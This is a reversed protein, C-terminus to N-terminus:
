VGGGIPKPPKSDERPSAGLFEENTFPRSGLAKALRQQRALYNELLDERQLRQLAAVREWTTARVRAQGGDGEFMHQGIVVVREGPQVGSVAATARGEGIVTIERKRVEATNTAPAGDNTSQVVFATIVGTAPDEWLASAPVLTGQESEGYLLDVQVFMGPQLRGGQNRVEIEGVTSFSSSELFPSIRALVGELTGGELRPSHIRVRQGERVHQLMEETLPIEVILDSLDGIVFLVDSPGAVMGVEADRRGVTGSIPARITARESSGRREALTASAEDVAAAAQAASARAAALQAELSELEQPSVLKEEALARSRAVRSALEGVRARQEDASARALRLAAEARRVQDALTNPDQRVLPQGRRVTEGNRVLVEIIPAEIEPRIAVQNEARIIGSVREEIPVSGERAEVVEVYPKAGSAEAETEDSGGCGALSVLLPFLLFLVLTRM